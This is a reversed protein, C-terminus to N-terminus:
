EKGLVERCLKGIKECHEHWDEQPETTTLKLDLEVEVPSNEFTVEPYQNKHLLINRSDWEAYWVGMASCYPKEMFLSLAGDKDRALFM